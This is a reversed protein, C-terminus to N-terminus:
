KNVNPKELYDILRRLVEPNDDAQGVVNIESKTISMSM